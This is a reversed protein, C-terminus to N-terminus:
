AARAIGSDAAAARDLATAPLALRGTEDCGELVLSFPAGNRQRVLEVSWRHRGLGPIGLPQAPACGIRWRTAAASPDALPCTGARRWRRLLFAPTSGEAAALQLRRTATMDARRVEGVVAALSGQRLADEMVSLVDRDERSEVFLANAPALGAQELGPGYLDFRTVAWLASATAGAFRAVLGALFRPAAAADALSSAGAAVEHLASASIGGDGLRADLADVEFALTGAPRAPATVGAMRKRLSEILEHRPSAADM